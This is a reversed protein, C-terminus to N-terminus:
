IEVIDTVHLKKKAKSFKPKDLFFFQSMAVNCCQSEKRKSGILELM